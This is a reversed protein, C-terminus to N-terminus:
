QTSATRAAPAPSSGVAELKSLRASLTAELATNAAKLAAIEAQLAAVETEKEARLERLSQVTLSEFGRINVTKYGDANITIWEPFVEEVEQAIFGIQTGPFQGVKAPEKYQYTVSRLHLVKDLAGALPEIDKKLRRDSVVGWAGGGPKFADGEFLEMNVPQGDGFTRMWLINNFADGKTIRFPSEQALGTMNRQVHLNSQPTETGVGVFGLTGANGSVNLRPTTATNDFVTWNASDRRNGFYWSRLSTTTHIGAFGNTGTHKLAITPDSSSELTLLDSPQTTGIGVKGAPTVTFMATDFRNEIM